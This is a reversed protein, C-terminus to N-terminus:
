EIVEECSIFFDDYMYCDCYYEPPCDCHTTGNDNYIFYYATNEKPIFGLEAESVFWWVSDDFSKFHYHYETEGNDNVFIMGDEFYGETLCENDTHCTEANAIVSSTALATGAITLALIDALINKLTRTIPNKIKSNTKM